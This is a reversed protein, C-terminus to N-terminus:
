GKTLFNIIRNNVFEPNETSMVHGTGVMVEVQLNRITMLARDIHKQSNLTPDNKGVFLLTPALIKALQEISLKVPAAIKGRCNLDMTTFMYDAFAEHVMPNEGLIWRVLGKKNTKTPFFIVSFLRALVELNGSLGQPGLLVLNKVRSASYIAFNMSIWGGMSSGILSAQEIGLKEFVEELWGSYAQGNKPYNDLQYLKSKGLDGITDLAYIRFRRCLDVINPLWMTANLGMAHVLIIPPGDKPGSVIVHTDGYRTPVYLSEYSVPWKSLREDYMSMLKKENELTVYISSRKNM